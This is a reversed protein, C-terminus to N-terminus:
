EHRIWESCRITRSEATYPRPRIMPADRLLGGPVLEEALTYVKQDRELSNGGTVNDGDVDGRRHVPDM